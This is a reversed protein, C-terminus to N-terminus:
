PLQTTMARFPSINSASLTVPSLTCGGLAIWQPCLVNGRFGCLDGNIVYLNPKPKYEYKISVKCRKAYEELIALPSRRNTIVTFSEAVSDQLTGAIKM